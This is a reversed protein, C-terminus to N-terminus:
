SILSECAQVILTTADVRAMSRAAQAKALLAERTLTQLFEALIPPKLDEQQEVWAGGADVLYKANLTQHDDSAYPFPVFLAAAGVAAIETVTSAGSRAIIIDADAYAKATDEIFATCSAAVNVALYNAQLRDLQAMGSQHTVCPREPLPMLALAQPVLDNLGQAGLSGGIVLLKLPGTRHAFRLEPAPVETFRKRLPNGVCPAAAGQHTLVDPFATYVRKAVWSLVRNALGPVANQEHIILDIGLLRAMLGAPVSIYGGMGIVVDPRIRRLLQYSRWLVQPLTVASRLKKIFGKGRWAGFDLAEFRIDYGLAAQQPILRSEMSPLGKAGQGGLWAVRWGKDMLAQAIALGPFIHGGTGGAMVLATPVGLRTSSLPALTSVGPM